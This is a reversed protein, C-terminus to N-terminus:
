SIVYFKGMAGLELPLLHVYALIRQTILELDVVKVDPIHSIIQSIEPIM